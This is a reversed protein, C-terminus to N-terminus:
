VGQQVEHVIALAIRELFKDAHPRARTTFVPSNLMLLCRELSSTALIAVGDWLPEGYRYADDLTSCQIYRELEPLECVIPGHVEKWYKRFGDLPMGEKRKILAVVKTMFPSTVRDLVMSDKTFLHESRSWDVPKSSLPSDDEFRGESLDVIQTQTFWLEEVGDWQVNAFSTESRISEVYHTVQKIGKLRDARQCQWDELATLDRTSDSRKLFRFMHISDQAFDNQNGTM